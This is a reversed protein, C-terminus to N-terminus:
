IQQLNVVVSGSYWIVSERDLDTEAMIEEIRPERGIYERLFVRANEIKQREEEM